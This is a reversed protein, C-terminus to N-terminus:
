VIGLSSWAQASPGPRDQASPPSYAGRVGVPFLSWMVLFVMMPPTALRAAKAAMATPPTAAEDPEAPLEAVAGALAAADV